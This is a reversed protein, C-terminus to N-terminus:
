KQEIKPARPKLHFHSPNETKHTSIYKVGMILLWLITRKLVDNELHFNHGGNNKFPTFYQLSLLSSINDHM